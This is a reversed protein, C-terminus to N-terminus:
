GQRIQLKQPPRNGRPQRPLLLLRTQRLRSGQLSPVKEGLPHGYSVRHIRLLSSFNSCWQYHYMLDHSVEDNRSIRAVPLVLADEACVLCDGGPVTADGLAFAGAGGTLLINCPIYDAEDNPVFSSSM